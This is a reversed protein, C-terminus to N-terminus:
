QGEEGNERAKLCSEARRIRYRTRIMEFELDRMLESGDMAINEAEQIERMGFSAVAINLAIIVLVAALSYKGPDTHSTSAVLMLFNMSLLFAAFAAKATRPLKMARRATGQMQKLRDLDAYLEPLKATEDKLPGCSDRMAMLSRERALMRDLIADLYPDERKGCGYTKLNM